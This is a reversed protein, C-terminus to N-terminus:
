LLGLEKTVAELAQSSRAVLPFYNKPAPAGVRSREMKACEEKSPNVRILASSAEAHQEAYYRISPVVVGAGVELVVMNKTQRNGWDQSIGAAMNSKHFNQVFDQKRGDQAHIVDEVLQGDGFIMVNPRLCCKQCKPCQPVWDPETELRKLFTEDVSIINESCPKSCQLNMLSGHIEEIATSEIGAKLHLFDCNSTQVFCRDKGFYAVLKMLLDYDAGPSVNARLM